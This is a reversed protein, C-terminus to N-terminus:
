GKISGSIIGLFGLPDGKAIDVHYAFIFSIIASFIYYLYNSTNSFIHFFAFVLLAISVLIVLYVTYYHPFARAPHNANKSSRYAIVTFGIFAWSLAWLFRPYDLINGNAKDYFMFNRGFIICPISIILLGVIFYVFAGIFRGNDKIEQNM